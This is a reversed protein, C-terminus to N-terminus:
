VQLRLPEALAVLAHFARLTPEPAGQLFNHDTYALPRALDMEAVQKLPQLMSQM